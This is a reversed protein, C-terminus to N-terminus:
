CLGEKPQKKNNNQPHIITIIGTTYDIDIKYMTRLDYKKLFINTWWEGDREGMIWYLTTNENQIIYKDLIYIDVLMDNMQDLDGGNYRYENFLYQWIERSLIDSSKNLIEIKGTQKRSM